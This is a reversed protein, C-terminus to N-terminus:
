LTDFLVANAVLRTAKEFQHYAGKKFGILTYGNPEFLLDMLRYKDVLSLM